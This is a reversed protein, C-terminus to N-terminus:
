PTAQWNWTQNGGNTWENTCWVNGTTGTLKSAPDPTAGGYDGWRCPTSASCSFDTDAITSAHVPVIASQAGAGIKSVMASTAYTTSSSTTLSVVMASGHAAGGPNVTRDNTIGADFVFLKPDSVRGTQLLTGAVPDVEYWAIAAGAGGKVTHAVWVATKGFRPDLGSVSHTLRGDLTDLKFTSGKQAAKTPPAFSPVTVSKATSLTPVKPNGVSPALTFESILNGTGCIDPCEIDSSASIYGKTSPDTQIAPVPTWAQTGNANRLNSFKGASFNVAAPCVTVPASGAPKNIWLLDSHTAHMASSSPYVNVGIMLFGKNQGLKPYDTLETPTYGFVSTYNCFDTNVNAPNSTKSFGWAQSNNTTDWINYYFRQTDPDWLAMPDSVTAHGTITNLSGSSKLVGTRSYIAMDTNIIELYSSPGAAGNADLPTGNNDFIGKFSQLIVPRQVVAASASLPVLACLALCVPAALRITRSRLMARGETGSFRWTGALVPTKGEYRVRGVGNEVLERGPGSTM